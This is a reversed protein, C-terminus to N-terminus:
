GRQARACRPRRSWQGRLARGPRRRPPLQPRRAEIRGNVAVALARRPGPRRRRQPRRGDAGARGASARRVHDFSAAAAISARLGRAAAGPSGRRGAQRDARPAPRHRHLPEGTAPASSACAAASSRAAARRGARARLDARDASFDRTTVACAAAVRAGRALLGLARRRPLRAPRGARRRDDPTVDLTQAYARSIRGRASAPRRSSSRCPRSSRRRELPERQAATSVGVQWAFGHDATVVILTDDYM